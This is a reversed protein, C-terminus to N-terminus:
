AKVEALVGRGADNIEFKGEIMGPVMRPTYRGLGMHHLQLAARTHHGNWGVHKDIGTLEVTGSDAVAQSLVLRQFKNLKM